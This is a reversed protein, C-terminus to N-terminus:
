NSNGSPHPTKSFIGETPSTHINEPIVCQKKGTLPPTFHFSYGRVQFHQLISWISIRPIASPSAQLPPEHPFIILFFYIDNANSFVEWKFLSGM